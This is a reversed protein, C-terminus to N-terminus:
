DAAFNWDDSYFGGRLTYPGYALLAVLTLGLVAAADARRDARAPGSAPRRQPRSAATELLSV